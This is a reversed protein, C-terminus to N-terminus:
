HQKREEVLKDLVAHLEVNEEKIKKFDGENNDNFGGKSSAMSSRVSMDDDSDNFGLGPNM